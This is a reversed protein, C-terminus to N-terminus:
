LIMLRRPLTPLPTTSPGQTPDTIDYIGRLTEKCHWADRVESNPDGADLLGRLRSRGQQTITESAAILLNHARYLPDHKHGRHGLTQNQVRRRVEDFRPTPWGCWM